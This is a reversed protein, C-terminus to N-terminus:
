FDLCAHRFETRVSYDRYVTAPLNEPRCLSHQSFSWERRLYTLTRLRVTRAGEYM